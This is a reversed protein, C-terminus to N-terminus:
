QPPMNKKQWQGLVKRALTREQIVKNYVNRKKVRGSGPKTYFYFIDLTLWLLLIWEADIKCLSSCHCSCGKNVNEFTIYCLQFAVAVYCNHRQFLHACTQEMTKDPPQFCLWIQLKSIIRRWCYVVTSCVSASCCSWQSPMIDIITM